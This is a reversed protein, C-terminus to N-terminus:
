KETMVILTGKEGAALRRYHFAICPDDPYDRSLAAFQQPAESLGAMLMRFAAEYRAIRDEELGEAALPEFVDTVTQRGKVVFSGIPRFRHHQAKGVIEGSVCIRTGTTKNLSELRSGTNLVDGQASYKLRARTGINGVMATGTHVGIRTHGFNVGRDRQEASFRCAFADVELAAAVARDAHDAQEQPAGFFAQVGDGSFETALGGQDFIAKCVGEFYDNTLDALVEPDMTEALTTFGAIDTFLVSLERREGGLKPLTESALMQAVVAPALYHEFSQRLLARTRNSAAHMFRNTLGASGMWAVAAPFAPLLLAAGFAGYVAGALSLLGVASGGLSLVPNRGFYGLAMGAMAWAWIWLVEIGRPCGQLSPTGDIAERILQDAIHAHVTIGYIPDRNNFGTNFPTSFFDKVSESTIGIIVARGRVLAEADEGHMVEGVSRHPFPDPGGRYDLLMQYGRSDLRTYVGRTDDLPVIVSRGLHLQDGLGAAPKIGDAELYGLALAMGIGAHNVVGDDAYLLGRRVVNGSDTLVDSLVARDTGRLVAPAPIGPKTGEPLKFAWVINKHQTLVAALRDTGPPEPHDRYLDVGIVRPHWGAIRELLAALDGDRLPWDWRQVDAETAGVLLVRASLEDNDAWAVRLQDYILLEVPQLWGFARTAILAAVILHAGILSRVFPNGLQRAVSPRLSSSWIALKGAIGTM